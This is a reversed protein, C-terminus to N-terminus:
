PLQAPLVVNITKVETFSLLEDLGEESGTGSEKRGGFSTGPFHSSNGNIWVYGAQVARATVLARNLDNTWISATLGYDVGNAIALLDDDDSWRSVALVPGFVESRFLRMGPTVDAFVTPQLWFGREFQAGGPRRGGTMLRAGDEKAAAIHSMVNQLHRANNLPGMDTDDRTPDGLRLASVKDVVRALVDDYLDEHLLLRSTSGCSQGQHGFNMGAVAATAVTEPDADGFVIMPNKGGLELSVHKVSSEAAQRQIARGTPVSGIFTLRKVRPHRVLAAGADLGTGTVINVVGPPFIEACLEALVTTSLPAEESPKLVVTNGAVLPAALRSAAFYFPHNFALIRGVVGYPERVSLHLGTPTSPVTEGKLELALGAFYELLDTAMTVDRVMRRRTNGTDRVELELLEDARELARRALERVLRARELASTAAWAPAARDAAAVALEVDEATAEPVRGLVAENSPDIATLWGGGVSACLKGDILM